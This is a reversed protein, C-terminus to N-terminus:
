QRDDGQLWDLVSPSLHLVDPQIALKTRCPHDPSRGRARCALNPCKHLFSREQVEDHAETPHIATQLLSALRGNRKLSCMLGPWVSAITSDRDASQPEPLDQVMTKANMM